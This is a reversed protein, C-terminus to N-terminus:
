KLDTVYVNSTLEVQEYVIQNGLPSWAPFRMLVGARTNRTLQKQSKDSRAVWWLNWIGDRSGAFTIREGDPSWGFPWSDGKDFTLQVPTGGGYPVVMVQQYDGQKTQYGILKGDPSWCPFGTFSTEYTLQRPTGADVSNVGINSFGNPSYNFAVQTADPSLRLFWRADAESLMREQRDELAISALTGRGGAYSVFAIQEGSPHWVPSTAQQPATTLQTPNNGAANILWLQCGEGMRESIFAIQQGNPSFSPLGNRSNMEDTLATPGGVPEHSIPSLRISWLNSKATWASYAIRGGSASITPSRLVTSGLDVVKIPEGIPAGTDPAVRQRLLMTGMAYLIGSGDPAWALDAKTFSPKPTVLTLQEGTLAISWIQMSQQDGDIFAIHKGDPSWTPLLHGGAPNGAQTVQRPKGDEVSAIWITASSAFPQIMEHLSESQFAILKGDPSWAPHCGHDTLQRRAGGLAPILWIGGSKASHYAIFKGDRSWAPEMNRNGDSTLQVERGGSALPKAYLEFSGSRDSSYVVTSGDPSLAPNLNLGTSGTVPVLKGVSINSVRSSPSTWAVYAIVCLAISTTGLLMLSQRSVSARAKSEQQATREANNQRASLQHIPSANSSAEIEVTQPGNRRDGNMVEVHAIFRYGRTHVTQIYRAQKPDDGLVKRLRAIERTLANETVHTDKWLADLLEDKEILRGRNEIMFLLVNFTKPEIQVECGAKLVGFTGPEVQIDDFRFTVSESNNM